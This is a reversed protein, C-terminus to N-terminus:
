NPINICLKQYDIISDYKNFFSSGLIGHIEIGYLKKFNMFMPTCDHISFEETLTRGSFKFSVSIINMTKENGEIGTVDVAKNTSTYMIGSHLFFNEDFISVGSGSDIIMNCKVGQIDITVYPIDMKEFNLFKLDADKHTFMSVVLIILFAVWLAIIIDTIM